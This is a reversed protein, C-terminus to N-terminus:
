DPVEDDDDDNQLAIKMSTEQLVFQTYSVHCSTVLVKDLTVGLSPTRDKRLVQVAQTEWLLQPQVTLVKNDNSVNTSRLSGRGNLM